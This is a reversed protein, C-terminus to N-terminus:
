VAEIESAFVLTSTRTRGFVDVTAVAGITGATPTASGAGDQGAHHAGHL